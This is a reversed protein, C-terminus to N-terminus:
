FPINIENDNRFYAFKQTMKGLEDVNDTIFLDQKQLIDTAIQIISICYQKMLEEDTAM